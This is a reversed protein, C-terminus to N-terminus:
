RSILPLNLYQFTDDRQSILVPQEDIGLTSGYTVPDNFKDVVSTVGPPLTITQPSGDASWLIYLSEGRLQDWFLYGELDTAGLETSALVRTFEFDPWHTALTEYADLSLKGSFSPYNLLGHEGYVPGSYDNMNYWISIINGAAAARTFQEVLAIAQTDQTR